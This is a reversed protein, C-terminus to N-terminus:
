ELSADPGAPNALGAAVASDIDWAQGDALGRDFEAADGGARAADLRASLDYPVIVRLLRDNAPLLARGAGFL